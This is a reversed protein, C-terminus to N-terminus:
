GPATMDLDLDGGGPAAPAPAPRPAPAASTAAAPTASLLAELDRAIQEVNPGSRGQCQVLVRAPFDLLSPARGTSRIKAVGELAPGLFTGKFGPRASEMADIVAQQARAIGALLEAMQQTTMNM